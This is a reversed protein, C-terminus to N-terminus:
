MPTLTIILCFHLFVQVLLRECTGPLRRHAPIGPCPGASIGPARLSIHKRGKIFMDQDWPRWLPMDPLIAMKQQLDPHVAAM